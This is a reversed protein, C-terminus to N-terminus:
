TEYFPLVRLYIDSTCCGYVQGIVGAISNRRMEQLESQIRGCSVRTAKAEFNLAANCRELSNIAALFKGLPM